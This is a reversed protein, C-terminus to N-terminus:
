TFMSEMSLQGVSHQTKQLSQMPSVSTAEQLHVERALDTKLLPLGVLPQLWQGSTLCTTYASKSKDVTYHRDERKKM